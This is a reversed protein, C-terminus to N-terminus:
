SSCSKAHGLPNETDDYKSRILPSTFVLHELFHGIRHLYQVEVAVVWDAVFAATYPRQIPTSSGIRLNRSMQRSGAVFQLEIFGLERLLHYDGKATPSRLVQNETLRTDGLISQDNCAPGNAATKEVKRHFLPWRRSWIPCSFAEQRQNQGGQPRRKLLCVLVVAAFLLVGFVVVLCAAIVEIRHTVQGDTQQLSLGPDLGGQYYAEYAFRDVESLGEPQGAIRTHPRPRTPSAGLKVDDSVTIRIAPSSTCRPIGGHDCAEIVLRHNVPGRIPRTLFLLGSAEDIAFCGSGPGDPPIPIESRISYSIRANEGEDRDVAHVTLIKHGLTEDPAMHLLISTNPYRFEPANDNADTITVAVTATATFTESGVGGAATRQRASDVASSSSAMAAAAASDTPPSDTAIVEFTFYANTERDLKRIIRIEGTRSDVSFYSLPLQAALKSPELHPMFIPQGSQLTYPSGSRSQQGIKSLRPGSQRPQRQLVEPDATENATVKTPVSRKTSNNQPMPSPSFSTPSPASVSPSRKSVQSNGELSGYSRTIKPTNMHYTISSSIATADRDIAEVVGIVERLPADEPVTFTYIDRTFEPAWDNVDLVVVEVKATGTLTTSRGHDVALVTMTYIGNEPANERDLSMQAYMDGTDEKIFFLNHIDSTQPHKENSLEVALRYSIKANEGLDPDVAVVRGLWIHQGGTPQVNEVVSFSFHGDNLFRPPNDNIDLLHLRIKREAQNGASDTCTITILQSPTTERDLLGQLDAAARSSQPGSPVKALIRYETVKRGNERLGSVSGFDFNGKFRGDMLGQTLPEAQLTFNDRPGLFCRVADEGNEDKDLVMDKGNLSRFNDNLPYNLEGGSRPNSKLPEKKWFGDPGHLLNGAPFCKSGTCDWRFDALVTPGPQHSFECCEELLHPVLSLKRLIEFVRVDDMEVLPLPVPLETVVVSPDRQEVDSPFDEDMDKEIVAIFVRPDADGVSSVPVKEVTPTHLGWRAHRRRCNMVQEEHVVAGKLIEAAKASYQLQSPLVTDRVRFDRLPGSDEADVGHQPLHLQSPAAVQVYAIVTDPSPTEEIYAVLEQQQSTTMLNIHSQLGRSDSILLDQGNQAILIEVKPPEDNVDALEIHVLATSTLRYPEPAGDHAIVVPAETAGGGGSGGGGGDVGGGGVGGCDGSDNGSREVNRGDFAMVGLSSLSPRDLLLLSLLFVMIFASTYTFTFQRPGLDYDLPAKVKLLGTVQDLHFYQQAFNKDSPAILYTLKANDGADADTANLQLVPSGVAATELLHGGPPTYRVLFRDRSKDELPNRQIPSSEYGPSHFVPANDNVDTIHIELPISGSLQPNGSDYAVLTLNYVALTERDLLINPWIRLSQHSVYGSRVPNGYNTNLAFDVSGVAGAAVNNSGGHLTMDVDELRFFESGPGKLTYSLTGNLGADLDVARELLQFQDPNPGFDNADLKYGRMRDVETSQFTEVFSVTLKNHGPWKPPNDNIDLIRLLIQKRNTTADSRMAGGSTDGSLGSIQSKILINLPKICPKTSFSLGRERPSSSSSQGVAHAGDPLGVGGCLSERDIRATVTLVGSKPNLTLSRAIVDSGMIHFTTSNPIEAGLLALQNLYEAVGSVGTRIPAEEVVDFTSAMPNLHGSCNGLWFVFLVLVPLPFNTTPDPRSPHSSKM